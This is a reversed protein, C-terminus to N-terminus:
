DFDALLARQQENSLRQEIDCASYAIRVVVNAGNRFDVIMADDLEFRLFHVASTKEENSRPLDEDAIATVPAHDGIMLQVHHEIDRLRQLERKRVDVDEYEILMTAKLNKGDPILPNYAGLEEEIGASEFIKETRLIEQIQYQITTRDEFLLTVYEGIRLKRLKKHSIVRERFSPRERAYTELPLLDARALKQM